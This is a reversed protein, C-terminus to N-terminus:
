LVAVNAEIDDEFPLDTPWTGRLSTKGFGISAVAAKAADDPSIM